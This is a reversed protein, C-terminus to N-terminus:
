SGPTGPSRTINAFYYYYHSCVEIESAKFDEALVSQLAAIATQATEDFSFEPNGKFRKELFNDAEQDKAGASTAQM